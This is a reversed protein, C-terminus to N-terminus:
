QAGLEELTELILAVAGELSRSDFALRAGATRYLEPLPASGGLSLAKRYSDLAAAPDQRANRWIQVAGLQALGYEVYYFPYLHIHLKRHWGTAKESELGTWDQSPMFRDWLAAWQEDCNQPHHAENPHTYVWHQFADVVAMYPWFSLVSELHEALARGAEQRTYFGGRAAELHPAALLEMAMSAVEAFEMAVQRQFHYPLHASEFVHFAHGAEHLLTQVDEHIGVANMFIFPRRQSSYELCYGGPAKSKRNELDLLGESVMTESYRGLQPDLARFIEVGKNQLEAGDRFPRLAPNGHPDVDMDWPRLRDVGLQRRRRDHRQRVAPVVVEEIAQHFRLCDEPSYDFRKMEQWRYARYDAFGANAAMKLRLDLFRVWLRNISDRDALWRQMSLRWAQARRERGAEQFVPQLQALTREQKEWVVTQAGIIRDFETRLLQEEVMLPLNEQTFLEAEARMRRLPTESNPPILGSELLRVRLNQEAEEAPPRIQDVFQRFSEAAAEDETNRTTAVYLRTYTEDLRESVQRWDGLWAELTQESLPRRQLDQYYPEIREWPWGIFEHRDGLSDFM